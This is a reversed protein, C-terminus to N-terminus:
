DFEHTVENYKHINELRRVHRYLHPNTFYEVQGIFHSSVPSTFWMFILIMAIKLTDFCPGSAIGLGLCVCFLAMTDGIGGAHVRNMIFGLRYVGIVEGIFFICAAILLFATVFFQIWEIM